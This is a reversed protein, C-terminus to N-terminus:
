FKSITCKEKQSLANYQEHTGIWNVYVHVYKRGFKYECIMRFANSGNGGIDFVVRDSSNGILNGKYTKTIDAPENWNAYKLVALWNDFHVRGNAHKRAYAEITDPRLLRIRM